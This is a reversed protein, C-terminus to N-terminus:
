LFVSDFAVPFGVNLDIVGNEGGQLPLIVFSKCAFALAINFKYAQDGLIHLDYSEVNKARVRSLHGLSESASHMHADGLVLQIVHYADM